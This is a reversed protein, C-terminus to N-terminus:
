GLARLKYSNPGSKAIDPYILRSLLLPDILKPARRPHWWPYVRPIAGPRTPPVGEDFDQGNFAVRTDATRPYRLADVMGM